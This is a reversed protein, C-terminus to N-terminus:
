RSEYELPRVFVIFTLEEFWPQITHAFVAFVAVCWWGRGKELKRKVVMDQRVM